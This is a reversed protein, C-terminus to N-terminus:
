PVSVQLVGEAGADARRTAATWCIGEFLKAVALHSACAEVHRRATTALRMGEGRDSLLRVLARAFDTAADARLYHRDQEVQLGEVGITTSVVPVGAAM